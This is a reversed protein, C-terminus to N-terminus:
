SQSRPLSWPDPFKALRERGEGTNKSKDLVEAAKMRQKPGM